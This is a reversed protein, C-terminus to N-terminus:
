DSWDLSLDRWTPNESEIIKIKKIRNWGKIEKERAIADNIFEFEEYYVLQDINFKSTFGPNTKTKHQVIRIELNNTVGTYLTRSRSALIYVYYSQNSPRMTKDQVSKQRNTLIYHIRAQIPSPPSEFYSKGAQEM